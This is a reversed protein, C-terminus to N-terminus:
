HKHEHEWRSLSEEHFHRRKRLQGLLGYRPGFLWALLFCAGLVLVIAAGSPV